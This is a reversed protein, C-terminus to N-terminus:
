AKILHSARLSLEYLVLLPIALLLQSLIDPPTVVAAFAFILVCAYPRFAVLQELSLVRLVVLAFLVAPLQFSLGFVFCLTIFTKLYLSIDPMYTVSPHVNLAMFSSLAPIVLFYAFAVGGYFLVLSSAMLPLLVKREEPFLGKSVFLYAQYLAFPFSVLFSLFLVGLLPTLFPSAVDVAILSSNKPLHQILPSAVLSFIDNKRCLLCCLVVCFFILSRILALRVEKLHLLLDNM